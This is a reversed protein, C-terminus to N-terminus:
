ITDSFEVVHLNKDYELLRLFAEKRSKTLNTDIIRIVNKEKDVRQSSSDDNLLSREKLYKFCKDTAIESGSSIDVKNGLVKRIIDKAFNFHTCGLILHDIDKYPIFLGKLYNKLYIDDVKNSEVANVIPDAPEAYVDMFNKYIEIKERLYDSKCTATTAIILVKLKKVFSKYKRDKNIQFNHEEIILGAKLIHELNPYTGFIRFDPFPERLAEPDSTSMTNCAIILAKPKYKYFRGIIDKGIEIINEKSRKGYPCNVSDAYFVYNENPMLKLCMNLNSIGGFGSDFLAIFNGKLKDM